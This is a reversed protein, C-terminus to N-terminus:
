PPFGYVRPTNVFRAAFNHDPAATATPTMAIMPNTMPAPETKPPTVRGTNKATTAVM